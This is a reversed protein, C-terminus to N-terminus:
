LNDDPEFHRQECEAEKTADKRARCAEWVIFVLMLIAFISNIWPWEARDQGARWAWGRQTIEALQSVLLIHLLANRWTDRWRWALWVCPPIGIMYVAGGQVWGVQGSNNWGTRFEWLGLCFYTICLGIEVAWFGDLSAMRPRFPCNAAPAEKNMEEGGEEGGARAPVDRARFCIPGTQM